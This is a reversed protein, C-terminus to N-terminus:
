EASPPVPVIRGVMGSWAMLWPDDMPTQRENAYIMTEAMNVGGVYVGDPTAYAYTNGDPSIEVRAAPEALVPEGTECLIVQQPERVDYITRCYHPDTVTAAPAEVVTFGEPLPNLEATQPTLLMWEGRNPYCLAAVAEGGGALPVIRSVTSDPENSLTSILMQLMLDGNPLYVMLYTEGSAASDYRLGVTEETWWILEMVGYGRADETRPLYHQTENQEGNSLDFERQVPPTGVLGESTAWAIVSSDWRWVPEGDLLSSGFGDIREFGQTSIFTWNLQYPAGAMGPLWVWVLKRADPSMGFYRTGGHESPCMEGTIGGSATWRNLCDLTDFFYLPMDSSEGPMGTPKESLHLSGAPEIRGELPTWAVRWALTSDDPPLNVPIRNTGDSVAFGDADKVAFYAGDPSVTLASQPEDLVISRQGDTLAALNYIPPFLISEDITMVFRSDTLGAPAKVIQAGEDLRTIEGSVIDIVDWQEIGPRRVGLLDGHESAVHILNDYYLGDPNDPNLPDFLMIPPLATGDSGYRLLLSKHDDDNHLLAFAEPSWFVARPVGSTGLEGGSLLDDARVTRQGDALTYEVVRATRDADFETYLLAGSDWRWVPMGSVEAGADRLPLKRIDLTEVDVTYFDLGPAADDPQSDVLLTKGDPSLEMTWSRGPIDLAIHRDEFPYVAYVSQDTMVFLPQNASLNQANTVLNLTVGALVAALVVTLAVQLYVRQRFTM